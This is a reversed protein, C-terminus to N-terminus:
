NFIQIIISILVLIIMFLEAWFKRKMFLLYNSILYTLPIALIVIIEISVSPILILLFGGWFFLSLIKFFRRTSISKAGYQLLIYISSIFTLLFLFAIYIQYPLEKILTEEQKIFSNNILEILQSIDKWVYFYTFVFIWPILLGVFPATVERWSLKNKLIFLSIPVIVILINLYFYFLGAFGIFIGADFANTIPIRKEFSNFISRISLIIFIASIFVPQIVHLEPIAYVIFLFIYVPLFTREKIFAFKANIQLLLFSIILVTLYNILVAFQFSIGTNYLPICIPTTNQCSETPFTGGSILTSLLLLFGTIPFLIYNYFYNAKFLKLLM